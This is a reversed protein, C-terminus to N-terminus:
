ICTLYNDHTSSQRLKGLYRMESSFDVTNLSDDLHVKKLPASFLKAQASSLLLATSLGQLVSYKM